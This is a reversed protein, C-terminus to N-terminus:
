KEYDVDNKNNTDETLVEIKENLTSFAEIDEYMFQLKDIRKNGHYHGCYWKKYALRNEISDLWEETTKDVRDQELGDIFWETPEYKLPVTHTLMVDVTWNLSDCKNEVTQKIVESPQEDSFWHWGRLLRYEKDVSYAGGCVLTTLGNFSYVEGDKAFLINPFRDEKYVIGGMFQSEKYTDISTPRMEHNGHICFLTINLNSLYEKLQMDYSNGYYNIGADGLIILIDNKTTNRKRCWMQIDNFNGHRDGTIYVM